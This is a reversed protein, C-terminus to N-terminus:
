IDFHLHESILYRYVDLANVFWPTRYEQRRYSLKKKIDLFITFM